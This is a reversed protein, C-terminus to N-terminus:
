LEAYNLSNMPLWYSWFALASKKWQTPVVGRSVIGVVPLVYYGPSIKIKGPAAGDYTLPTNPAFGTGTYETTLLELGPMGVMANVNPGDHAGSQTRGAMGGEQVQVDYDFGHVTSWHPVPNDHDASRGLVFKGSADLSLVMGEVLDEPDVTSALQATHDLAYNPVFGKLRELVHEYDHKPIAM